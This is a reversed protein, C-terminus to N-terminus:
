SRSTKECLDDYGDGGEDALLEGDSREEIFEDDDEVDDDDPTM